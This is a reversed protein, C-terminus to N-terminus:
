ETSRTPFAAGMLPPPRFPKWRDPDRRVRDGIVAMVAPDFGLTFHTSRVEINEHRPAREDILSRQWHVVRDNRSYVSTTPM